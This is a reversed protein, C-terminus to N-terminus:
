KSSSSLLSLYRSNKIASKAIGEYAFLAGDHAIDMAGRAIDNFVRDIHTADGEAEDVGGTYTLGGIYHLADADLAGILLHM